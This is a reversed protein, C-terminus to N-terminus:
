VQSIAPYRVKLTLYPLNFLERQWSERGMPSCHYLSLLPNSSSTVSVDKVGTVLQLHLHKREEM